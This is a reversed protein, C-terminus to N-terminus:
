DDLVYWSSHTLFKDPMSRRIFDMASDVNTEALEIAQKALQRRQEAQARTTATTRTTTTTTTTTATRTSQGQDLSTASPSSPPSSSSSVPWQKQGRASVSQYDGFEIYDDGKRIYENWARDNRTVQYNCRTQTIEDLFPRKRNVKDKLIIQLHLHQRHNLESIEEGICIYRINEIGFEAKVANMVLDKSIDTWATIAFSKANLRISPTPNTTTTAPPQLNFQFEQALTLRDLHGYDAYPRDRDAVTGAQRLPLNGFTTATTSSSSSSLEPINGILEFLVNIVENAQTPRDRIMIQSLHELETTRAQSLIDNADQEHESTTNDDSDQEENVMSINSMFSTANVDAQIRDFTQTDLLM